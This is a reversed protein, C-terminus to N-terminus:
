FPKLKFKNFFKKNGSNFRKMSRDFYYHSFTNHIDTFFDEIYMYDSNMITTIDRQKLLQEDSMEDDSNKYENILDNVNKCFSESYKKLIKLKDIIEEKNTWVIKDNDSM